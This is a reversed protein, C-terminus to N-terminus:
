DILSIYDLTAYQFILTMLCSDNVIGYVTMYYISLFFGPVQTSLLQQQILSHCDSLPVCFFPYFHM